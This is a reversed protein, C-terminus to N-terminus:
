VRIYKSENMERKVDTKGIITNQKIREFINLIAFQSILLMFISLESNFFSEFLSDLFSYAQWYISFFVIARENDTICINDTNKVFVRSKMFMFIFPIFFVISGVIGLELILQIFSNHANAETPILVQFTDAGYGLIPKQKVLEWTNRWIENRGNTIDGAKIEAEMKGLVGQFINLSSFIGSVVIVAIALVIMTKIWKSNISRSAVFLLLVMVVITPWRRETMAVLPVLGLVVIVLATKKVGKQMMVLYVFLGIALSLFNSNTSTQNTFGTYANRAAFALIRYHFERPLFPLFVERYVDIRVIHVITIVIHVITFLIAIKLFWIINDYNSCIEYAIIVYLFISMTYKLSAESNISLLSTILLITISGIIMQIYRGFEVHWCQFIFFGCIGIVIWIVSVFPRLIISPSFFYYWLIIVDLLKMSSTVKKKMMTSYLKLNSENQM